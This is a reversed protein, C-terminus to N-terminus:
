QGKKRRKRRRTRLSRKGGGGREGQERQRKLQLRVFRPVYMVAAGEEFLPYVLGPTNAVYTFVIEDKAALQQNPPTPLPDPEPDPEIM